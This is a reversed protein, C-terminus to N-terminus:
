RTRKFSNNHQEAKAFAESMATNEKAPSRAGEYLNSTKSKKRHPKGQSFSGLLRMQEHLAIRSNFGEFQTPKLSRELTSLAFVGHRVQRIFVLARNTFSGIIDVNGIAQRSTAYLVNDAGSIKDHIGIEYVHKDISTVHGVAALHWGDVSWRPMRSYSTAARASSSIPQVSAARDTCPHKPWPPGLEDFFVSSGYENCYYFVLDGCVPCQANPITISGISGNIPPIGAPWKAHDAHM